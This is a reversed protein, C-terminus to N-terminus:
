DVMFLTTQVNSWVMKALCGGGARVQVDGMGRDCDQEHVGSGPRGQVSSTVKSGKVTVCRSSWSRMMSMRSVLM